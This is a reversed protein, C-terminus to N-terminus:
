EPTAIVSAGQADKKLEIDMPPLLSGGEGNTDIPISGFVALHGKVLSAFQLQQVKTGKISTSLERFFLTKYRRYM